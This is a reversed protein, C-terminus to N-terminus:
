NVLIKMLKENVYITERGIKQSKLVKLEELKQLYRSAAKREVGLKNVLYNIKSYPHEYIIEILEKSYIKNAKGKTIKISQDLASKIELIKDITSNATQEVTNLMYVIWKSWTGRTNILNLNKYYESKTEIIHSSLYLIPIDLYENLILYLLNLIRGTRGNGDYFPHISEFQFHLIAMNILENVTSKKDNFHKIFNSLLSEIEQKDQPPTYVVKGTKENRLVTGPTSRIGADNEIIIKQIKIIDNIKLFEQKKILDTGFNLAQRYNIVEKTQISSSFNQANIASYLEDETTIINEIGSSDKSEKLTLANILIKQNPILRALGKLEAIKLTAKNAAKLTEITEVNNVNPPLLALTEYPTNQGM